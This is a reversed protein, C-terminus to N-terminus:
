FPESVPVWGFQYRFNHTSDVSYIDTGDTRSVDMQYETDKEKSLKEIGGKRQVTLIVAYM